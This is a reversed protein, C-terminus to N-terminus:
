NIAPLHSRPMNLWPPRGHEDYNPILQAPRGCEPCHGFDRVVLACDSADCGSQTCDPDSCYVQFNCGLPYFPGPEGCEPCTEMSPPVWPFRAFCRECSYWAEIDEVKEFVVIMRLHENPRSYEMNLLTASPWLLETAYPIYYPPPYHSTTM